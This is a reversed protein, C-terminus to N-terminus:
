GTLQIQICLIDCPSSTIVIGPYLVSSGFFPLKGCRNFPHGYQRVNHLDGQCMMPSFGDIIVKISAWISEAINIEQPNQSLIAVAFLIMM